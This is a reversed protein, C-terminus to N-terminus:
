VAVSGHIPEVSVRRGCCPCYGQWSLEVRIGDKFRRDVVERIASLRVEEIDHHHKAVCTFEFPATVLEGVEVMPMM